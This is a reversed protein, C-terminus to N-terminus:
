LNISVKMYMKGGGKGGSPRPRSGADNPTYISGYSDGALDVGGGGVGGHGAGGLKGSIDKGAGLTIDINDSLPRDTSSSSLNAALEVDINSCTINFYDAMISARYKVNLTGVFMDLGTNEDFELTSAPDMQLLGFTVRALSSLQTAAFPVIQAKRGVRMHRGPGVILNITGRLLGDLDLATSAKGLITATESLVFEGGDHLELNIEFKSNEADIALTGKQQKKVRILGTSDGNVKKVNISKNVTLDEALQLKAFNYVNVVSFELDSITEDLTMYYDVQGNANDITMTDLLTGDRDSGVLTYISGPGGRGHTAPSHGGKASLTAQSTFTDVKTNISIRGGSGGGASNSNVDGGDTTMVGLGHLTELCKM